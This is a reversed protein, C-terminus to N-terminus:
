AWTMPLCVPMKGAGSPAAQRAAWTCRSSCPHILGSSFTTKNLVPLPRFYAWRQALAEAGTARQSWCGWERGLARTPNVERREGSGVEHWLWLFGTQRLASVKNNEPQLCLKGLVGLEARTVSCETRDLQRCTTIRRACSCVKPQMSEATDQRSRRSNGYTIRKWTSPM